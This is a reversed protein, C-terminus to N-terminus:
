KQGLGPIWRALWGKLADGKAYDIILTVLSLGICGVSFGIAIRTNEQTINTLDAVAPGVAIGCLAGVIGECLKRSVPDSSRNSLAAAASGAVGAAAMPIDPIFEQM